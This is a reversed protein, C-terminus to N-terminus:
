IKGLPSKSVSVCVCVTCFYVSLHTYGGHKFIHERSSGYILISM